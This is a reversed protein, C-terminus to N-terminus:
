WKMGSPFCLSHAPSISGGTLVLDYLFRGKIMAGKSANLFGSASSKLKPIEKEKQKNCVWLPWTFSHSIFYQFTELTLSVVGEVFYQCTIVPLCVRHMKNLLLPSLLSICVNFCSGPFKFIFYCMYFTMRFFELSYLVM